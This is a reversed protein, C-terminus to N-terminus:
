VTEKAPWFQESLREAFVEVPKAMRKAMPSAPVLKLTDSPCYKTCEADGDCLDCIQAKETVPNFTICGGRGNSVCAQYCVGCATKGLCRDADVRITFTQENYILVDYPCAVICPRDDCYQCVIPIDIPGIGAQYVRIRSKDPNVTKEHHMSCVIECIRCGSCGPLSRLVLIQHPGSMKGERAMM